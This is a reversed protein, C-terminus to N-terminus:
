CSALKYIWPRQQPAIDKVVINSERNEKVEVGVMEVSGPMTGTAESGSEWVRM